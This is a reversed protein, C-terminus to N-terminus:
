SGEEGSFVYKNLKEILKPMGREIRSAYTNDVARGGGASEIIVGGIYSSDVGRVEKVRGSLEPMSEIVEKALPVDDRVVSVVLDENTFVGSRVAEDILRSLSERRERASLKSLRERVDKIIEELVRNKLKVLETNLEVVKSVYEVNKEDILKQILKRRVEEVRRRYEEEAKRIMEEARRRADEVIEEAERRARELVRRRLEELSM